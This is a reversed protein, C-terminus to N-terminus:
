GVTFEEVKLVTETSYEVASGSSTEEVLAVATESVTGVAAFAVKVPFFVSVDDGAGPVKFELSGSTNDEDSSVISTSWLLHNGSPVHEWDGTASAVKPISGSPLPVLIKLDYLTLKDNELEYEINVECSGDDTPTPWCNISLPLYSEDKKTLRWRLLELSRGVPFTESANKLAILRDGTADFKAVKPNQKYQLDGPSASAPEVLKIRIPGASKDQIEVQLDGKLDLSKLSGDRDLAVSIQENVQIHIGERTVSPLNSPTSIRQISAAAPIAPTGARSRDPTALEGGLADLVEAQKVKKTAGLKMGTGKFAPAKAKPQPSETRPVPSATDFRPVSSYGGSNAVTGFGGSNGYEMGGGGHAARRQMERKQIEMQKARRKLEEKAEAEKNRAIIEQIKEEHSEMELVSKVQTLNIPERYGLCVVEDFAGMLEFQKSTIEKEEASRCLDSVIRAFLHLTDIDQLINSAKNTILLIYLEELPQYVYRVDPTEVSTHQSNPPILKPFSTLLSEVRSRPM